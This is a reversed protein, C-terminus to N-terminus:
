EKNNPAIIFLNESSVTAIVSASLIAMSMITVFVIMCPIYFADEM